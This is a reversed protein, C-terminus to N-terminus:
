TRRPAKAKNASQRKNRIAYAILVLYLVIGIAYFHKTRLVLGKSIMVRGEHFNACIMRGSFPVDWIWLSLPLFSLFIPAIFVKIWPRKKGIAYTTILSIIAWPLSPDRSLWTWVIPLTYDPGFPNLMCSPRYFLLHHLAATVPVATAICTALWWRDSSHTGNSHHHLRAIPPWVVQALVQLASVM